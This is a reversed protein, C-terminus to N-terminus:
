PRVDDTGGNAVAQSTNPEQLCLPAICTTIEVIKWLYLLVRISFVVVVPTINFYM